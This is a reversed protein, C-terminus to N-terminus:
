NAYTGERLRGGGARSIRLVHLESDDGIGVTEKARFDGGSEFTDVTDQMDAVDAIGRYQGLERLDSRDRRDAAVDVSFAEASLQGFGVDHEDFVRVVGAEVDVHQVVEFGQVEIGGCCFEGGDEMAVRMNWIEDRLFAHEIEIGAGAAGAAEFKWDCDAQQCDARESFQFGLDNVQLDCSDRRSGEIGSQNSGM